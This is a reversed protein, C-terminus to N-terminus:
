IPFKYQSKYYKNKYMTTTSPNLYNITIYRIHDIIMKSVLEDSIFVTVFNSEYQSFYATYLERFGDPKDM